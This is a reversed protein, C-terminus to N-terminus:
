SLHEDQSGLKTYAVTVPKSERIRYVTEQHKGARTNDRTSHSSGCFNTKLNIENILNLHDEILM